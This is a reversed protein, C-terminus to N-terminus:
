TDELMLEDDDEVVDVIELPSRQIYPLYESKISIETVEFYKTGANYKVDDFVEDRIKLFIDETLLNKEKLVSLLSDISDPIDYPSYLNFYKLLSKFNVHTAGKADLFYARHKRLLMLIYGASRKYDCNAIMELALNNSEEDTTELLRDLDDYKKYDIVISSNIYPVLAETNYVNCNINDNIFSMIEKYTSSSTMSYYYEIDWHDDYNDNSDTILRYKINKLYEVLSDYLAQYKSTRNIQIYIRNISEDNKLLGLLENYSSDRYEHLFGSDRLTSQEFFSIMVEKEIILVSQTESSLLNEIHENSVFRSDAKLVDRILKVNYKTCFPKIKFKPVSANPYIFIKEKETPTYSEKIAVKKMVDSMDTSALMYRYCVTMLGKKDPTYRDHLFLNNKM